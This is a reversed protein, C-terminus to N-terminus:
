NWEIASSMNKNLGIQLLKELDGIRLQINKNLDRSMCSMCSAHAFIVDLTGM